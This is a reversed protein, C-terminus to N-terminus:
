WEPGYPRTRSGGEHVPSCGMGGIGIRARDLPPMVICLEPRMVICLVPRM